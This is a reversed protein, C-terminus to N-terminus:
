CEVMGKNHMARLGKEGIHRMSENWLMTLDIKDHRTSNTQVLEDRNLDLQTSTLDFELSVINNCGNLDVNGLLKYRTGIQVGKMLVMSGRVM